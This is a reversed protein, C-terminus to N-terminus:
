LLEGKGKLPNKIDLNYNFNPSTRRAHEDIKDDPSTKWKNKETRERDIKLM